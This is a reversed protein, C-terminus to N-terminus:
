CNKTLHQPTALIVADHDFKKEGVSLHNEEVAKVNSSLYM